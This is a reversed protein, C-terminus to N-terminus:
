SRSAGRRGVAATMSAPPTATSAGLHLTGPVMAKPTRLPDDIVELLLEAARRGMQEESQDIWTLPTGWPVGGGPWVAQGTGAFDYSVVSLDDPISLGLREAACLILATDYTTSGILATAELQAIRGMLIEIRADDSVEEDTVVWVAGDGDLLAFERLADLFGEIRVALSQTAEPSPRSMSVLAIRRHGLDALHAVASRILPGNDCVVYPTDIGFLWRDVLVFPFRDLKLRLIEENYLEGEVPCIILGDVGKARFTRIVDAESETTGGSLGLLLYADHEALAEAAGCMLHRSFEDPLVPVLFGVIGSRERPPAPVQPGRVPFTGKGSIREIRHEEVLLSLAKKVTTLSVQFRDVLEAETPLRDRYRNDDLEQRLTEAVQLYLRGRRDM